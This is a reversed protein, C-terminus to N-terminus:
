GAQSVLTDLWKPDQTDVIKGNVALTPTGFGRQGNGFDQQLAPDTSVKQYAEEIIQNYTGNTVGNAFDPSTIGVDQGLKILQNKDYGRAGEEPQAAFLSAHFAAFKGADAALLAANASDLSYGPPDSRDNLLTLMHYRVRVTGDEIKKEIQGAYADEFQRCAPCLFDEYVDLTVKATDKGVLVTAGDRKTELNASVTKVPIQVGAAENKQSNTILVGAVVAAAIVVVVAATIIIKNRDSKKKRAAAVARQAALEQRRKKANREAGGM